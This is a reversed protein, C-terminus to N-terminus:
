LFGGSDEGISKDKLFYMRSAKSFSSQFKMYIKTLTKM